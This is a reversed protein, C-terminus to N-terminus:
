TVAFLSLSTICARSKYKRFNRSLFKWVARVPQEIVEAPPPPLPDAVLRM